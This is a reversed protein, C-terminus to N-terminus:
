FLKEMGIGDRSCMLFDLTCARLIRLFHYYSMKPHLSDDLVIISLLGFFGDRLFLEVASCM